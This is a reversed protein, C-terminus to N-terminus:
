LEKNDENKRNEWVKNRNEWVKETFYGFFAVSVTDSTHNKFYKKDFTIFVSDLSKSLMRQSGKGEIM